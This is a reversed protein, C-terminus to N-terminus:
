HTNLNKYFEFFLAGAPPPRIYNHMNLGDFFQMLTEAHALYIIMKPFKQSQRPNLSFYKNFHPM